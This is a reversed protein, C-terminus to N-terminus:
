DHYREKYDAEAVKLRQKILEIDQKPTAIGSKSKKQFCHLIYVAKEFKVTYVARFTDTNFDQVVELVGGGFSKLPKSNISKDGIQAKHIAFGMEQMVPRPFACYDKKSSSVWYLPKIEANM